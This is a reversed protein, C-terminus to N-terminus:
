GGMVGLFINANNYKEDPIYWTNFDFSDVRLRYAAVVDVQSSYTDAEQSTCGVIVYNTSPMPEDFTARFVGTGLQTVAAINFEGRITVSDGNLNMYARMTRKKVNLSDTASNSLKPYTVAETALKAATIGSTALAIHPAVAAGTISFVGSEGTISEIYSAGGSGTAFLLEFRNSTYNLMLFVVGAM